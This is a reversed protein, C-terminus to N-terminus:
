LVVLGAAGNVTYALGDSGTWPSVGASENPNMDAVLSGLPGTTDFGSGSWVQARQCVGTVQNATGANIGSVTLPATGAHISTTGATTVTSGLQAWTVGDDSTWFTTSKGGSGNDVDIALAVWHTTGNTFGTAATSNVAIATGSTGGASSNLQLTGSTAVSLLYSRQDGATVFKGVLSNVAAPTWDTLSGCWVLAVDGTIDLAAADPTSVYAGSTGPLDVARVVVVPEGSGAIVALLSM